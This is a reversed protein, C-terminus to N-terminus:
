RDMQALTGQFTHTAVDHITEEWRWLWSLDIHAHGILLATFDRPKFEVAPKEKQAEVAVALALFLAIAISLASKASNRM